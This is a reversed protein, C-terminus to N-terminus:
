KPREHLSVIQQPHRGHPNHIARARPKIGAVAPPNVRGLCPAGCGRGFGLALTGARVAATFAFTM